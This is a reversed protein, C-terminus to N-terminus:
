GRKALRIAASTIPQSSLLVTLRLFFLDVRGDRQLRCVGGDSDGLHALVFSGDALISIGNPISLLFGAVCLHGYKTALLCEPRNLGTGIFELDAIDIRNLTTESRAM